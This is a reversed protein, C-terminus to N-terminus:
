DVMFDYIDLMNIESTNMDKIWPGGRTWHIASANPYTKLTNYGETIIHEEPIRSIKDTWEFQHLYKGTETNVIEPTLKKCDEHSNNFIMFSSWLKKPYSVNKEGDFKTENHKDFDYQVCAVADDPNLFYFLPLISKRFLIDDDLFISYGEFNELHPILFRSYTFETSQNAYDRTYDPLKSIDLFNITPRYDKILSHVDGSQKSITKEIQKELCKKNQEALDGHNSDYGIYISLPKGASGLSVKRNFKYVEKRFNTKGAGGDQNGHSIELYGNSYSISMNNHGGREEVKEHIIALYEDLTLVEGDFVDYDDYVCVEMDPDHLLEFVQSRVSGPHISLSFANGSKYTRGIIPGWQGEERLSHVLWHAKASHYYVSNLMTDVHESEPDLSSEEFNVFDSINAYEDDVGMFDMNMQHKKLKEERTKETWGHQLFNHYAYSNHSCNGMSNLTKDNLKEDVEKWKVLKLKGVRNEDICWQALKYADSDKYDESGYNFSGFHEHHRENKELSSLRKQVKEIDINM